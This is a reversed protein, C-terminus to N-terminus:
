MLVLYIFKLLPSISSNKIHEKDKETLKGKKKIKNSNEKFHEYEIETSM